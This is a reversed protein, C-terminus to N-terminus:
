SIISGGKNIPKIRRLLMSPFGVQGSQHQAEHRHTSPCGHTDLEGALRVSGGRPVLAPQLMRTRM